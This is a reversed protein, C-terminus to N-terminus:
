GCECLGSWGLSGWLSRWRDGWGRSYGGGWSAGLGWELSEEFAVAFDEEGEVEGGVLAGGNGGDHLLFHGREALEGWFQLLRGGRFAARFNGFEHLDEVGFDACFEVIALLCFEVLAEAFEFFGKSVWGGGGGAGLGTAARCARSFAEGCLLGSILGLAGCCADELLEFGGDFGEVEGFLLFGFDICGEGAGAGFEGGNFGAVGGGALLLACDGVIESLFQRFDEGGLLLGSETFAHLLDLLLAVARGAPIAGWASAL